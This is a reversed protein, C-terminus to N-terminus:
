LLLWSPRFALRLSPAGRNVCLLPVFNCSIVLFRLGLSDSSEALPFTAYVGFLPVNWTIPSSPEIARMLHLCVHIVLFVLNRLRLGHAFQISLGGSKPSTAALKQPYLTGCLWCSPDGRGYERSELGCDSIKRGLLEEITSVLTLPGRELGMAERFIQYRRFYFGSRQIRLWSSKVVLGCFRDCMFFYSWPTSCKELSWWNHLSKVTEWCKISCCPEYGCECSSEV